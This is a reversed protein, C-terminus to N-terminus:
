RASPSEMRPYIKVSGNGLIPEAGDIALVKM